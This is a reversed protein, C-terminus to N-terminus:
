GTVEQVFELARQGILEADYDLTAVHYSRELLVETVRSSSIADLVIRSNEPEVVHDHTSHLLLVPCTVRWLQDRVTPSAQQMSIAALTPVRDYGYENNGPKAIDNALGSLSPIVRRILPKMWSLLPALKADWRTAMVAPNILIIGAIQDGYLEALRLTLMGGMSLGAVVVKECRQRLRALTQAVCSLWDHFGTDNMHQWITGHGPLLPLEVTYGADAFTDALPRMSAPSGTFGHCVVVGIPGGDHHFPADPATSTNM